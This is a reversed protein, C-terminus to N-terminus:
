APELARVVDGATDFFRVDPVALVIDVLGGADPLGVADRSDLKVAVTSGGTQLVFETSNGSFARDTVVASRLIVSSSDNATSGATRLVADVPRFRITASELSPIAAAELKPDGVSFRNTMGMFDAAWETAPDRHVDAPAGVQVVQGANMVAIRDGVTLGEAQDHTVYVGTFQFTKHLERIANRLDARLRADLNSLPEDFLLLAPRAVLARALAIRQQQGGSLEGPHRDLLHSCSVMEAMEEAWRQDLGEKNRRARLPFRINELVTLHPWLGYNQFVMGINRRDPIVDTRSTSEFVTRGGISITGGTPRELGALCRLITTKGCGSPGLLVLMEGDPVDLSVEQLAVSKSSFSKSLNTISVGSM